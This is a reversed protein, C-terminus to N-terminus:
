LKKGEEEARSTLDTFSRNRGRSKYEDLIGKLSWEPGEELLEITVSKNQM